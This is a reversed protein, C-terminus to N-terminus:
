AQEKRLYETEFATRRLSSRLHWLAEEQFQMLGAICQATVEDGAHQAATLVERESKLLHSLSERLTRMCTRHHIAGDHAEIRSLALMADMTVPPHGELCRVRRAIAEVAGEAHSVYGPLLAVLSAYQEGWGNWITGRINFRLVEFDAILNNLEPILREAWSRDLQNSLTPTLTTM